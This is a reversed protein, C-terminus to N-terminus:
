IAPLWLTLASMQHGQKDFIVDADLAGGVIQNVQFAYFILETLALTFKSSV